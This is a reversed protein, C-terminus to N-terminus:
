NKRWVCSVRIVEHIVREKRSLLSVTEYAAEVNTLTFGRSIKLSVEPCKGATNRSVSGPIRLWFM